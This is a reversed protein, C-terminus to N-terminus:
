DDKKILFAGGGLPTVHVSASFCWTLPKGDASQVYIHTNARDSCEWRRIDAITRGDLINGPRLDAVTMTAPAAPLMNM